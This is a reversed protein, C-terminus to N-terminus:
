GHDRDMQENIIEPSFYKRAHLWAKLNPDDESRLQLLQFFNSETDEHGRIALGQRTLYRLSSLQKILAERHLKEDRKRADDLQSAISETHSTSLKLLAESHAQSTEHKRFCESAKRWNCFGASVFSAEANKSFVILNRSEATM